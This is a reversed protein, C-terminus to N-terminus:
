TYLANTYFTILISRLPEDCIYNELQRCPTCRLIIKRNYSSSGWPGSYVPRTYADRTYRDGDKCTEIIYKNTKERHGPRSNLLIVHGNNCWWPQHTTCTASVAASLDGAGRPLLVPNVFAIIIHVHVFPNYRTARAPYGPLPSPMATKTYLRPSM